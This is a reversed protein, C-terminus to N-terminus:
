ARRRKAKARKAAPGVYVCYGSQTKKVRATKGKARISEAQKQATTKTKSCSELRYTRGAIKASTSSTAASKTGNM